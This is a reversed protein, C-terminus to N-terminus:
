ADLRRSIRDRESKGDITASTRKEIEKMSAAYREALGIPDSAIDGPKCIPEKGEKERYKNLEGVVRELMHRSTFLAQQLLSQAEQHEASHEYWNSKWEDRQAEIREILKFYDDAQREKLVLRAETKELVMRLDALEDSEGLIQKLRSKMASKLSM